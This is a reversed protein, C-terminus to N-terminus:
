LGVEKRCESGFGSEISEPVTLRRACRSCRGEHWWDADEMLVDVANPLHSAIWRIARVSQDESPVTSKASLNFKWPQTTPWITGLFSWIHGEEPGGLVSIWIPRTQWGPKADPRRFRFTYRKMTKHSRVTLISRGATIHLLLMTPQKIQRSLEAIPADELFAVQPPVNM